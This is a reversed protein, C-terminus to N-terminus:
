TAILCDLMEQGACRRPRKVYRAALASNATECTENEMPRWGDNLCNMPLVKEVVPLAEDKM